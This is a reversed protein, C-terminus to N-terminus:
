SKLRCPAIPTAGYTSLTEGDDLRRDNETFGLDAHRAHGSSFSVLIHGIEFKFADEAVVSM